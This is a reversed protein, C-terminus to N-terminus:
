NLGNQFLEELNDPNRALQLILASARLKEPINEYLLELYEDM